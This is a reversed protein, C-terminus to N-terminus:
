VVEFGEILCKNENGFSILSERCYTNYRYGIYCSGIICIIFLIGLSLSIIEVESVSFYM